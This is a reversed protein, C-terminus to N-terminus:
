GYFVSIMSLALELTVWIMGDLWREELLCTGSRFDLPGKAQRLCASKVGSQLFSQCSIDTTTVTNQFFTGIGSLCHCNSPNGLLTCKNMQKIVKIFSNSLNAIFISEGAETVVLTYLEGTLNPTLRWFWYISTKKKVAAEKECDEEAKEYSGVTCQLKM